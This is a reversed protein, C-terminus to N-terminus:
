KAEKKPFWGKRVRERQQFLEYISWLLSCGAVALISSLVVNAVLVSVVLCLTGGVAFLPWLKVGFHYEGKIVVPHLLGIILLAAVGVVLGGYNM